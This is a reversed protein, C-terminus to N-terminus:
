RYEYQITEGETNSNDLYRIFHPQDYNDMMHCNSIDTAQWFFTIWLGHAEGNNNVKNIKSVIM